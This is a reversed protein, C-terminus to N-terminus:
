IKTFVNALFFLVQAGDREHHHTAATHGLSNALSWATYAPNTTCVVVPVHDVPVYGAVVPFTPSQADDDGGGRWPPPLPRCIKPIEQSDHIPLSYIEIQHHAMKQEM